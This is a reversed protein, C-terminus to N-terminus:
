LESSCNYLKNAQRIDGDSLKVRQGIEKPTGNPGKERPIITDLYPGRSFTNRAYHMISDYDYPEGLSNIEGEPM